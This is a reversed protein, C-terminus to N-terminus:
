GVDQCAHPLMSVLTCAPAGMGSGSCISEETYRGMLAPTCAWAMRSATHLSGRTGAMMCAAILSHLCLTFPGSAPLSPTGWKDGRKARQFGGGTGNGFVMVGKGHPVDERM